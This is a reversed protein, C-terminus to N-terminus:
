VTLWDDRWGRFFPQYSQIISTFHSSSTIIEANRKDQESLSAGKNQAKLAELLVRQVKFAKEVVCLPFQM